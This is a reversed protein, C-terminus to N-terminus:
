LATNNIKEGQLMMHTIQPKYGMKYARVSDGLIDLETYGAVTHSQTHGQCKTTNNFVCVEPVTGSLWIKCTM